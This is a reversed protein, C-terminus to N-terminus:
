SFLEVERVWIRYVSGVKEVRVGAIAAHQAALRAAAGRAVPEAFGPSVLLTLAPAAPWATGPAPVYAAGLLAVLRAHFTEASWATQM